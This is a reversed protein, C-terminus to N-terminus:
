SLTGIAPYEFGSSTGAYTTYNQSCYIGTAGTLFPTEGAVDLSYVHNYMMWGTSATNAVSIASVANANHLNHILNHFIQIQLQVETSACYIPAYPSADFTGTIKNGILKVDNANKLLDIATVSAADTMFIENGVLELGDYDNDAVGAHIVDVWNEDVTIEEITNFAFRFGKASILLLNAIDAHGPNWICNELTMNAATVLGTITSGDMLFTPRADYRGLGFISVGAKDLTLGGAGTLTETHNPAIFITDGRDAVCSDLALDLTKHLHDGPVRGDLWTRAQIGSKAVYHVEGVFPGDAGMGQIKSYEIFADNAINRNRIM